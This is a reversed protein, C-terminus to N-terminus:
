DKSIGLRMKYTVNARLEDAQRMALRVLDKQYRSMAGGYHEKPAESVNVKPLNPCQPM